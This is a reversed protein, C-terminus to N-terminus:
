AAEAGFFADVPDPEAAPTSAPAEEVPVDDFAVIEAKWTVSDSKTSALDRGAETGAFEQLLNNLKRGDPKRTEIVPVAADARAKTILGEDALRDLVAGARVPDWKRVQSRAVKVGGYHSGSEVAGEHFRQEIMDKLQNRLTSVNTAIAVLQGYAAAQVEPSADHLDTIDLMEGTDTRTIRPKRDRDIDITILM